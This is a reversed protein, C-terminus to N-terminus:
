RTFLQWVSWPRLGFPRHSYSRAFLLCLSVLRKDCFFGTNNRARDFSAQVGGGINSAHIDRRM